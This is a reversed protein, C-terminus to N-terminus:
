ITAVRHTQRGPGGRNSKDSVILGHASLRPEIYGLWVGGFFVCIFVYLRAWLFTRKRRRTCNAEASFSDMKGLIIKALARFLYWM